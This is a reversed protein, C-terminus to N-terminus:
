RNQGRRSAIGWVGVLAYDKWEALTGLSKSFDLYAVCWGFEGM